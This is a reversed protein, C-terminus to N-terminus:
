TQSIRALSYGHTVPQCQGEAAAIGATYLLPMFHDRTPVARAFDPHEALRLIASPDDIMQEMAAEDFRHAWDAGATPKNWDVLHLNHLVNGSSLM